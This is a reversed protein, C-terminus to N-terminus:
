ERKCINHITQIKKEFDFNLHASRHVKLILILLKKNILIRHYDPPAKFMQLFIILLIYKQIKM